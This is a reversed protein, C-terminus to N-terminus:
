YASDEYARMLAGHDDIVPCFDNSAVDYIDGMLEGLMNLM